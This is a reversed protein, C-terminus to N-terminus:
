GQDQNVRLRVCLRFGINPLESGRDIPVSITRSDSRREEPLRVLLQSFFESFAM